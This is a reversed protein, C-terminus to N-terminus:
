TLHGGFQNQKIPTYYEILDKNLLLQHNLKGNLQPARIGKEWYVNSKIIIAEDWLQADIFYQLTKIGGEVILSLIKQERLYKLIQSLVPQEFDIKVLQVKGNNENKIDNFIVTSIIGDYVHYNQPVELQKDIIVRLPSSGKWYRTSLEPNDIIATKKGVLIAQNEARLKHTLRKCFRNSIWLQQDGEPAMFGNKTEAWNLIIYPRKKQQFTFYSKLLQQHMGDLIGYDVEVGHAKLYAIGEGKVLTNCDVSAIVVKPIKKEVILHSCPPTKGFHNCPELSVYLTSEKLLHVDTEDVSNICNVEAHNGGYASTYGEGIIRNEHVLVAGVSPNPAAAAVGLQALQFCRKLYFEYEQQKNMDSLLSLL